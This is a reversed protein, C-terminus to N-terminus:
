RSDYNASDANIAVLSRMPLGTTKCLRKIDEQLEVEMVSANKGIAFDRAYRGTLMAKLYFAQMYIEITSTATDRAWILRAKITTGFSDEEDKM